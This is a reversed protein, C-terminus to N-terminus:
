SMCDYFGTPPYTTFVYEEVNVLEYSGDAALLPLDIDDDAEDGCRTKPGMMGIKVNDLADVVYDLELEDDYTRSAVKAEKSMKHMQLNHDPDGLSHDEDDIFSANADSILM